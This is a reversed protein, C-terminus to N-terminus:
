NALVAFGCVAQDKSVRYKLDRLKVFVDSEVKAAREPNFTWWTPKAYIVFQAPDQHMGEHVGCISPRQRSGLLVNQVWLRVGGGEADIVNLVDGKGDVARGVESHMGMDKAISVVTDMFQKTEEPKIVVYFKDGGGQRPVCSTLLLISLTFLASALSVKVVTSTTSLMGLWRNTLAM